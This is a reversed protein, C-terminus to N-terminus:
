RRSRASSGRREDKPATDTLWVLVGRGIRRAEPDPYDLLDLAALPQAAGFAAVPSCTLLPWQPALDLQYTVAEPHPQTPLTQLASGNDITFEGVGARSVSSTPTICSATSYPEPQPLTAWCRHGTKWRATQLSCFPVPKM